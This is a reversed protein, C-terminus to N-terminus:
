LLTALARKVGACGELVGVERPGETGNSHGMAGEHM